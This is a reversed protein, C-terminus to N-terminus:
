VLHQLHLHSHVLALTPNIRRDQYELGGKAEAYTSEALSLITERNLALRKTTKRMLEGEPKAWGDRLRPAARLAHACSCWIVPKSLGTRPRSNLLPAPSGGIQAEFAMKPM